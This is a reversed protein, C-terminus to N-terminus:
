YKGPRLHTDGVAAGDPAKEPAVPGEGRGPVRERGGACHQSGDRPHVGHPVCHRGGRLRGLWGRLVRVGARPAVGVSPRPECDACVHLRPPPAAPHLDHEVRGSGPTCVGPPGVASAATARGGGGRKGGLGLTSHHESSSFELGGGPAATECCVWLGEIPLPAPTPRLPAAGVAAEAQASTRLPPPGIGGVQAPMCMPLLRGGVWSQLCLNSARGGVGLLRAHPGALAEAGGGGGGGGGRLLACGGGGGDGWRAWGAARRCAQGGGARLHPQTHVAHM